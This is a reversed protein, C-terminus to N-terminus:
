SRHVRNPALLAAFKLIRYASVGRQKGTEDMGVLMRRKLFLLFDARKVLKANVQGVVTPFEDIIAPDRITVLDFAFRHMEAGGPRRDNGM